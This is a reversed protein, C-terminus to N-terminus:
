LISFLLKAQLIKILFLFLIAVIVLLYLAIVLYQRFYLRFRLTLQGYIQGLSLALVPLCFAIYDTKPIYYAYDGDFKIRMFAPSSIGVLGGYTTLIYKLLYFIVPFCLGFYIVMWYYKERQQNPACASVSTLSLGLGLAFISGLGAYKWIRRLEMLQEPYDNSLFLLHFLAWVFLGVMLWIPVARRQLFYHRYQYIPYLSLLAGSILLIRRFYLLEYIMWVSYLATFVICQAWILPSPIHVTNKGPTNFTM